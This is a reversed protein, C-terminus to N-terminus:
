WQRNELMQGGPEVHLWKLTQIAPRSYPGKTPRRM